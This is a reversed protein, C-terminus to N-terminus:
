RIRVVQTREVQDGASIRAWYVGPVAPHGGLTTGDWIAAVLGPGSSGRIVSVERGAVDVIHISYPIRVAPEGALEFTFTAPGNSPNPSAMFKLRRSGGTDEGIGSQAPAELRLKGGGWIANPVPGTWSDSLARGNLLSKAQPGSLTPANEMILALGGAVHAAAVSTGNNMRHKGDQLRYSNSPLSQASLAGAVGYGPATIDPSQVGDRRPGPSSYNAIDNMVAYFYSRNVNNIDVWTRKTTYAGVSVVNNATAPSCVLKSESKYQVFEPTATGLLYSTLWANVWHVGGARSTFRLKWTGTAITPLETSGRYVDLNIRYSGNSSTYTGNYIKVLGSNTFVTAESGRAIPGVTEGNPAIISVDYNAAANHWAEVNFHDSATASPTYAGVTMTIDFTQFTNTTANEAHRGKGNYNGAAAVVVKGPGTLASIALDHPDTGDHPGNMKGAAVLVVAPKGLAQAKRFVYDVGDVVKTDAFGGGPFPLLKVIVLDAEPAVGTYTYMPVGNGTARGNGAAIGAILTGHGDIDYGQYNGSNISSSTYETGYSFGAPATGLITQDWLYKIRTGSSTKFDEHTPDIGTDVIGVVVGSGTSGSPSFMPPQGGWLDDADIAPVSVNTQLEMRSALQLQEIGQLQLLANVADLPFRVTLVDGAVTGVVGGLSEIDSPSVRGRVWMDVWTRGGEEVTRGNLEPVMDVASQLTTLRGPAQREGIRVLVPDISPAAGSPAALFATHLLVSFFLAGAFFMHSKMRDIRINM